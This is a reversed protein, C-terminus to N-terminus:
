SSCPASQYRSPQPTSNLSTPLSSIDPRAVMSVVVLRRSLTSSATSLDPDSLTSFFLQFWNVPAIGDIVTLIGKFGTVGIITLFVIVVIITIIM